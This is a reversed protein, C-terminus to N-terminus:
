KQIDLLIWIFQLSILITLNCFAYTSIWLIHEYMNTGDSTVRFGVGFRQGWIKDYTEKHHQPKQHCKGGCTDQINDSQIRKHRPEVWRPIEIQFGVHEPLPRDELVENNEKNESPIGYESFAQKTADALKPSGKDWILQTVGCPKTDVTRDAGAHIAMHVPGHVGQIFGHNLFEKNTIAVFPKTPPHVRMKPETTDFLGQIIRHDQCKKNETAGM